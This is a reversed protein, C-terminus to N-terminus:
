EEAELALLSGVAIARHKDEHKPPSNLSVMYPEPPPKDFVCSWPPGTMHILKFGREVMKDVIDENHWADHIDFMIKFDMGGDSETRYIGDKMGMVQEAVLCSLAEDTLASYDTM